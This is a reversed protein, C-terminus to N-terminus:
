CPFCIAVQEKPTLSEKPHVKQIESWNLHWIWRSSWLQWKSPRTVIYTALLLVTFATDTSLALRCVGLTPFKPMGTIHVIGKMAMWWAMRWISSEFNWNAVVSTGDISAWSRSNCNENFISVKKPELSCGIGRRM